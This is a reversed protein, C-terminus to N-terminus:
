QQLRLGYSEGEQGLLGTEPGFFERFTDALLVEDLQMHKGPARRFVLGDREDLAKLGIWDEQYITRNRLPTVIPADPTTLNVEAFWGSEKPIVTTDEDFVFMVFKRLRALRTAYAATKRPRENNVDALFASHALYADSALGTSANLSRYYQAPVVRSQVYDTWANGKILATSGKCLLDWTGCVQFQAIGNHQSGFTVLNRVELADCREILGRLFQGGQSFGLANVRVTEKRRGGKGASTQETTMEGGDEGTLERCVREIQESVNGFFTATRDEDGTEGLRIYRVQTGPYVKQALEGVSQLGENDFKDGLGHWILLPLLNSDRQTITGATTPLAITRTILLLIASSLLAPLAPLLHM